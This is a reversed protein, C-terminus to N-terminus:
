GSSAKVTSGPRTPITPHMERGHEDRCTRVGRLTSENVEHTNGCPFVKVRDRSSLCQLTSTVRPWSDGASRDASDIDLRPQGMARAGPYDAEARPPCVSAAWANTRERQRIRDTGAPRSPPPGECCRSTDITSQHNRP